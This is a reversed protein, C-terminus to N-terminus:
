GAEGAEGPLVEVLAERLQDATPSTLVLAGAHVARILPQGSGAPHAALVVVAVAPAERRVRLVLPATSTRGVDFPPLVLAGPRFALVASLLALRDDVLEVRAIGAAAKRVLAHEVQGSLLGGVICPQPAPRPGTSRPKAVRAPRTRHSHRADPV